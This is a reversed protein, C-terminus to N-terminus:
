PAIRRPIILGYTGSGPLRAFPLGDRRDKHRKNGHHLAVVRKRKDRDRGHRRDAVVVVDECGAFLSRLREQLAQNFRPVVVLIETM